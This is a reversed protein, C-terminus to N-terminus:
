VDVCEATSKSHEFKGALVDMSAATVDLVRDRAGRRSEHGCTAVRVRDAGPSNFRGRVRVRAFHFMKERQIMPTAERSRQSSDSSAGRVRRRSLGQCPAPPASPTLELTPLEREGDRAQLRNGATRRAKM